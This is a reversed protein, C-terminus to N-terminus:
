FKFISSNNYRTSSLVRPMFYENNRGLTYEVVVTGDDNRLQQVTMTGCRFRELCVTAAWFARDKTPLSEYKVDGRPDIVNYHYM